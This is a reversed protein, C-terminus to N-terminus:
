RGWPQRQSAARRKRRGVARRGKEATCHSLCLGLGGAENRMNTKSVIRQELGAHFRAESGCGRSAFRCYLSVQYM